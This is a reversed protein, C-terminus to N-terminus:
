PESNGPRPRPALGLEDSWLEMRCQSEAMAPNLRSPFPMFFSQRDDHGNHADVAVPV